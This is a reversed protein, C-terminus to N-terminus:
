AANAADKLKTARDLRSSLQFAFGTDTARARSEEASPFRFDRGPLRGMAEHVLLPASRIASPDVFVLEQLM